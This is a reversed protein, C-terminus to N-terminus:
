TASASTRVFRMASAADMKSSSLLSQSADDASIRAAASSVCFASCTATAAITSALFNMVWLCISDLPLSADTSTLASSMLYWVRTLVACVSTALHRFSAEVHSCRRAAFRATSSALPLTAEASSLTFCTLSITFASSPSSDPPSSATFAASVAAFSHWAVTFVMTRYKSVCDRACFAALSSSAFSWVLMFSIWSCSSCEKAAMRVRASCCTTFPRTASDSARTTSASSLTRLTDSASAGKRMSPSTGLSCATAARVSSSFEAAAACVTTPPVLVKMAIFRRAALRRESLAVVAHLLSRSLKCARRSPSDFFSVSMLFPM